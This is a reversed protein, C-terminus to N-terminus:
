NEKEPWKEVIGEPDFHFITQPEEKPEPELQEKFDGLISRMEMRNFFIPDPAKEIKMAQEKAWMRERYMMERRMEDRYDEYPRYYKQYYGSSATSSTNEAYDKWKHYWEDRETM